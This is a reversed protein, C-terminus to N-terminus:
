DLRLLSEGQLWQATAIHEGQAPDAQRRAINLAALSARLAAKPDTMMASKAAAVQDDFAGASPSASAGAGAGAGQTAPTGAHALGAMGLLGAAAALGALRRSTM